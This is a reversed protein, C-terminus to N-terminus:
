EIMRKEPDDNPERERWFRGGRDWVVNENTLNRFEKLIKRNIAWNGNENIYANEKGFKSIIEDVIVEQYLIKDEKLRFLMFEAIEIEKNSKAKKMKM